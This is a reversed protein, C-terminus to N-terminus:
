RQPRNQRIFLIEDSAIKNDPEFTQSQRYAAEAEDWRRLEVLAYGQGRLAVAQRHARSGEPDFEANEQAERYLTLARLPQGTMALVHALESKYTSNVSALGVVQELVDRAEPLRKLDVLAFAKGYLSDCVLANVTILRVEARTSVMAMTLMRAVEEANGRDCFYRAGSVDLPGALETSLTQFGALAAETKGSRLLQTAADFRQRHQDTIRPIPPESGAPASAVTSEQAMVGMTALLIALGTARRNWKGLM